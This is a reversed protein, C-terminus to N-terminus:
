LHKNLDFNLMKHYIVTYHTFTKKFHLSIDCKQIYQVENNIARGESMKGVRTFCMPCSSGTLTIKQTAPYDAFIALVVAKPFYVQQQNQLNLIHGGKANYDRYCQAIAAHQSARMAKKFRKVVVRTADKKTIGMKPFTGLSVKAYSSERADKTFFGGVIIIGEGSVFGKEDRQIEDFFLISTLACTGEPLTAQIRAYRAGDCLDALSDSTRANLRLNDM